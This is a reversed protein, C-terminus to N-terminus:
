ASFHYGSFRCTRYLNTHFREGGGGGGGPAEDEGCSQRDRDFRAVTHSQKQAPIRNMFFYYVRRRLPEASRVSYGPLSCPALRWALHLTTLCNFVEASSLPFLLLLLEHGMTIHQQQQKIVKLRFRPVNKEAPFSPFIKDDFNCCLVKYCGADPGHCCWYNAPM